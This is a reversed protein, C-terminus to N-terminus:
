HYVLSLAPSLTMLLIVHATSPSWSSLTELTVTLTHSRLSLLSSESHEGGPSAEWPSGSGLCADPGARERIRAGGPGVAGVATSREQGCREALPWERGPGSSPGRLVSGTQIFCSRSRGLLIDWCWRTVRRVSQVQSRHAHRPSEQRPGLTHFEQNVPTNNIRLSM